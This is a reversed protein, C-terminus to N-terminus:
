NPATAGPSIYDQKQKSQVCMCVSHLKFPLLCNRRKGTAVMIIINIQSINIKKSNLPSSSMNNNNNNYFTIAPQQNIKLHPGDESRALSMKGAPGANNIHSGIIQM